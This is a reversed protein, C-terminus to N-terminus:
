AKNDDEDYEEFEDEEDDFDEDDFDEFEDELEESMDGHVHSHELEEQTANRLSVITVKFLLDKGALPHNFDLKVKDGDISTIHADLVHGDMNRVQVQTGVEMPVDEPFDSRSVEILAEPDVDGYAESAVVTVQKSDGVSMGTLASELGPIINEHGHLYELPDDKESYDVVEGEVELTYEISVVVDNAVQEPQESQNLNQDM